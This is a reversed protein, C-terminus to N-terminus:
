ALNLRLYAVNLSSKGVVENRKSFVLYKMWYPLCEDESESTKYNSM